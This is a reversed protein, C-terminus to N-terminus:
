SVGVLEALTVWHRPHPRRKGARVDAAYPKSVSLASAIASIPWPKLKPQVQEVYVEETLWAPLHIPLWTSRAIAHRRQTNSRRARAQASYAAARGSAREAKAAAVLNTTAVDIACVRCYRRGASTNMGCSQCINQVVPAANKLMKYPNGRAIERQRQTLRTPLDTQRAPKTSTSWFARAVWEAVPAVARGWTTATESLKETFSAMLRCSGDRQEFFWERKLVQRTILDLVYADVQPRVAEMVDCALSDRAPTDAHIVGLGPDLGLVALALRSESELVAYLYNLIANAPNAALRQSGSLPSKRTDFVRWHEPVRRLDSKPFFIVINRWAAWYEAAGLSEFVRVEDITEAKKVRRQFEGIKNATQLDLLKNRVVQEQGALKRSILERAIRLGAGTQEALSQARRLRADSSQVPGTTILVKGDRNLLVFACDQASLWRLAALSVMGDNGIVVLRRLGHGVRPLRFKRREPGIGDEM